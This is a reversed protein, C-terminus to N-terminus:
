LASDMLERATQLASATPSDSSLMVAIERVREEPTLHCIHSATKQSESTDPELQKYVKLQENAAAAIQPLHTIAIVQMTSSMSRLIGGVHVAIDGSVGTDIEDFIITPLLTQQTILSKIALMLRSLEGGSAVKDIERPEGGRNANFLFSVRDGGLPGLEKAQVISVFLCADKMGLKALTPLIQREVFSASQRRTESLRDALRQVEAYAADVAEMALRIQEDMGDAAQLTEDLRKQISLLETVTNVGHKKQLRYITDLRDNVYDQREVSFALNADIDSINDLIDRLEILCSDFRSCLEALDPHYSIVKSLQSKAAALRTVASDEDDVCLSSVAALTQKIVETHEMLESEQELAEQEGDTLSAKQLEEFLFKNYDLDRKNQADSAMLAELRHKLDIYKKYATQYDNRIENGNNFTDLLLIQFVSDSLALTEHQSHIDILRQAIAKLVPLTAPTDNVFARSKASPLVERRLIMHDDYDIDNEDFLPKLGLGAINFQAEVVCKRSSDYLTHSDARQGLVLGLAGLLISKGAGTEGTIATFGHRFSIDSERILAYNEIHLSELM